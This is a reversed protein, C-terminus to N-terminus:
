ISAWGAFDEIEQTGVFGAEHPPDQPGGSIGRDCGIPTASSQCPASPGASSSALASTRSPVMVACPAQTRPSGSGYLRDYASSVVDPKTVLARVTDAQPAPQDRDSSRRRRSPPAQTASGPPSNVCTAPASSQSRPYEHRVLVIGTRRCPRRSPPPGISRRIAQTETGPSWTCAEM